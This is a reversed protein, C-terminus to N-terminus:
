AVAVFWVKNVYMGLTDGPKHDNKWFYLPWGNYTVQRGLPGDITGLKGSLSTKSAPTGSALLLPPWFTTCVGTCNVRGVADLAYTYLTMGDQNKSMGAPGAGVLFTMTTPQPMVPSPAAAAGPTPSPVSATIDATRVDVVITGSPTAATTSTTGGSGGCAVMLVASLAVV